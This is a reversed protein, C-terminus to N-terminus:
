WSASGSLVEGSGQATAEWTVERDKRTVVVQFTTGGSKGRGTFYGPRKETLSLESFRLEQKLWAEFEPKTMQEPSRACGAAIVCFMVVLCSGALLRSLM